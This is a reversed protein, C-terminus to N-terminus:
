KTFEFANMEVFCQIMNQLVSASPQVGNGLKRKGPKQKTFVSISRLYGCSTPFKKPIQALVVKELLVRSWPNMSPSKPGNIIQEFFEDLTVAM